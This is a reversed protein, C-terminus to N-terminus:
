RSAGDAIRKGQRRLLPQLARVADAFAGLEVSKPHRAAEDLLSRWALQRQVGGEQWQLVFRDGDPDHYEVAAGSGAAKAASQAQRRERQLSETSIARLRELGVQRRLAALEAADLHLAYQGAERLYWPRQVAVCGDEHVRVQLQEHEAGRLAGSVISLALLPGPSGACAVSAANVLSPLLLVGCFVGLVLSAVAGPAWTLVVSRVM